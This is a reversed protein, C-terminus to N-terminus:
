CFRLLCVQDVMQVIICAEWRCHSEAVFSTPTWVKVTCCCKCQGILRPWFVWFLVIWYVCFSRLIWINSLRLRCLKGLESLWCAPAIKRRISSISLVRRLRRWWIVSQFPLHMWLWLLHDDMLNLGLIQWIKIAMWRFLQLGKSIKCSGMFSWLCSYLWSKRFLKWYWIAVLCIILMNPNLLSDPCAWRHLVKIIGWTLLLKDLWDSAFTRVVKDILWKVCPATSRCKFFLVSIPGRNFWSVRIKKHIRGYRLMKWLVLFMELLKMWNAVSHISALLLFFLCAHVQEHWTKKRNVQFLLIQIVFQLLHLFLAM